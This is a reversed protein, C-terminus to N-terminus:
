AYQWKLKEGTEPHNGCTMRRGQCCDHIHETSSLGCWLVCDNVSTFIVGTNICIIKRKKLSTKLSEGNRSNDNSFVYGHCCKRDGHLVRSIDQRPIFVGLDKISNDSAEKRTSYKYEMLQLVNTCVDVKYVYINEVKTLSEIARERMKERAYETYTTVDPKYEDILGNNYANRLVRRVVEIGIKYKDALERKSYKNNYDIIIGENRKSLSKKFIMEKDLKSMDFYQNLESSIINNFIQDFDSVKCEIRILRIDHLLAYEDKNKDLKASRTIQSISGDWSSVGHGLSGDMEVAINYANIYFDFYQRFGNHCFKYQECFDAELENLIANMINEGLSRNIHYCYKCRFGKHKFLVGVRYEKESKRKCVPCVPYIKKNSCPTYTKADNINEFFPIMWGAKYYVTNDNKTYRTSSHQNNNTKLCGCSKTNGSRLNEGCINVINGCECLCEWYIRKRISKIRKIVTLKGFKLGTLDIFKGM